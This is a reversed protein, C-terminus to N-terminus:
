GHVPPNATPRASSPPRKSRHGARRHNKDMRRFRALLAVAQAAEQSFLNMDLPGAEDAPPQRGVLVEHWNLGRELSWTVAHTFSLAWGSLLLSSIVAGLGLKWVGSHLLWQRLLSTFGDAFLGPVECSASEDFICLMEDGFCRRFHSPHLGVLVRYLFRSM